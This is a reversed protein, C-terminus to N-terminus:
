ESVINARILRARKSRSVILRVRDEEFGIRSLLAIELVLGLQQALRWLEVYDPAVRDIAAHVLCNRADAVSEVFAGQDPIYPAVLSAFNRLVDRLRKRLSYQNLFRLKTDLSQRFDESVDTPIAHQLKNKLGRSYEEDNQYQGGVTIRHFAEVAHALNLFQQPPPMEPYFYTPFFLDFVPKLEQQAHLFSEFTAAPTPQLDRLTFLMDEAHVDRTRLPVRVQRVIEVEHWVPHGQIEATKERTKGIMRGPHAAEGAAFTLLTRFSSILREFDPFPRDLGSRLRLECNEQLTLSQRSHRQFISPVLEIGIGESEGLPVSEGPSITIQSSHSENNHTQTVGSQGAWAALFDFESDLTHILVDEAHRYHGGVIGRSSEVTSTPWGASHTQLNSQHARLLTIAKGRVTNGWVDFGSWGHPGSEIALLSGVLDLELGACPAYKVTGVLRKDPSDPLWWFGQETVDKNEHEM